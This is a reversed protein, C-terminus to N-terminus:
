LNKQDVPTAVRLWSIQKVTRPKASGPLRTLASDFHFHNRGLDQIRQTVAAGYFDGRGSFTLSMRPAYIAAYVGKAVSIKLVDALNVSEDGMGFIQLSSPTANATQIEGDSADLEHAIYLRVDGNIKLVGGSTLRISNVHYVGTPLTAIGGCGVTLNGGAITVAGVAIVRTLDTASPKLGGGSARIDTQDIVPLVLPEERPATSGGVLAGGLISVVDSVGPVVDGHLATNLGLLSVSGNSGISANSTAFANGRADLNTAQAAYPGLASDYGDASTGSGISVSQDGFFGTSFVSQTTDTVEVLSELTRYVAASRGTSVLRYHT